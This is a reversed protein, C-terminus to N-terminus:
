RISPARGSLVKAAVCRMVNRLIQFDPTLLILKVRKAALTAELAGSRAWRREREAQTEDSRGPVERRRWSLDCRELIRRNEM